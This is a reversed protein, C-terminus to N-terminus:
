LFRWLFYQICTNFCINSSISWSNGWRLLKTKLVSLVMEVCLEFGLLSIICIRLSEMTCCVTHARRSLRSATLSLFTSECRESSLSCYCLYSTQAKTMIFTLLQKKIVTHLLCLSLGLETHTHVLPPRVAPWFFSPDTPIM